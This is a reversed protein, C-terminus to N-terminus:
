ATAKCRWFPFYFCSTSQYSIMQQVKERKKPLLHVPQLRAPMNRKM